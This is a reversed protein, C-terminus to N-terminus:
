ENPKSSKVPTLIHNPQAISSSRPPGQGYTTAQWDQEPRVKETHLIERAGSWFLSDVLCKKKLFIIFFFLAKYISLHSV